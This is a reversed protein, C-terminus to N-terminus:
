ILRRRPGYEAAPPMLKQDINVEDLCERVTQEVAKELSILDDADFENPPVRFPAMIDKVSIFKLVAFGIVLTVLPVGVLFLPGTCCFFLASIGGIDSNGRGLGEILGGLGGAAFFPYLATFVWLGLFAWLRLPSIPGLSYSVQSVYLDKGFPAIYLGITARLRQLLFYPREDSNIGRRHLNAKVVSADPLERSAFRRDVAAQLDSYHDGKDDILWAVHRGRTGYGTFPGWVSVKADAQETVQGAKTTVQKASRSLERAVITSARGIEGVAKGIAESAGTERATSAPVDVGVVLRNGCHICFPGPGPSPDHCNPCEM